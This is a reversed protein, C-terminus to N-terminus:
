LNICVGKCLPLFSPVHTLLFVILRDRVCGVHPMGSQTGEHWAGAPRWQRSGVTQGAQAGPRLPAEPPQSAPKIAGAATLELGGPEM